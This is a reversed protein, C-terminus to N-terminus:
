PQFLGHTSSTIRDLDTSLAERHARRATRAEEPGLPDLFVKLTRGDDQLDVQARTAHRFLVVGTEDIVEFRTVKSTDM